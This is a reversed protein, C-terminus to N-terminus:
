TLEGSDRKGLVKPLLYKAQKGPVKPLPYTAEPLSDRHSTVQHSIAGVEQGGRM